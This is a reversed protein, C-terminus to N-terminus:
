ESTGKVLYNAIGVENFCSIAYREKETLRKHLDLLVQRTDIELDMVKYPHFVAKEADSQFDFIRKIHHEPEGKGDIGHYTQVIAFVTEVTM